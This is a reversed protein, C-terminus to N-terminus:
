YKVREMEIKAGLAALLVLGQRGQTGSSAPTWYYYYYWNTNRAKTQM